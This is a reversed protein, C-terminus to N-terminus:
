ILLSDDCDSVPSFDITRVVHPHKLEMLQKGTTACWVRATFDGSATAALTRTLYDLKASWVAGLVIIKKSSKCCIDGKHGIFSGIWDGTEGHRVQPVKDTNLMTLSMYPVFDKRVM